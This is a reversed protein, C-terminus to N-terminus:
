RVASLVLTVTASTVAYAVDAADNRDVAVTVAAADHAVVLADSAITIADTDLTAVVDVRDGIEVPLPAQGVPVAIGRTGPPLRSATASLGSPAVRRALVVEGAAIEAVVTGNTPSTLAGRPVLAAPVREVHAGRVRDGPHLDRGAVLVPRLAGWRAREAAAADTVHAVASVTVAILAIAALWYPFPHRRLRRRFM